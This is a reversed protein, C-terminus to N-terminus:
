DEAERDAVLLKLFAQVPPLFMATLHVKEGCDNTYLTCHPMACVHACVAVHLPVPQSLAAMCFLSYAPTDAHSANKGTKVM